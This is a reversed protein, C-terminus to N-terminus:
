PLDACLATRDGPQQFRAHSFPSILYWDAGPKLAEFFADSVLVSLNFNQFRGKTRNARIFEFIDPHRIDMVAMQAGRRQGATSLSACLQDLLAMVDLPGCAETNNGRVLAGKPRITSFDYGIGCGAKLTVGADKIADLISELDDYIPRSVVCNITSAVRAGDLDGAGINTLIRGAPIAGNRLAWLFQASWARRKEAPEFAAVGEAVRTLTDALTDDIATGALTRLRYKRDWIERSLDQLEPVYPRTQSPTEM